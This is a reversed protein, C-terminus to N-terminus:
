LAEELRKTALAIDEDYLQWEPPLLAEYERHYYRDDLLLVMGKDEESRIVRGAAQLVKHMGPFRCAYAYGDGFCRQYCKAVANMRASPTPLGVGIIIAGILREGPLDVGESFLGGLVCLGLRPKGPEMFANLFAAREEEGMERNQVWLPPIDATELQRRVLDLYAYSPFYAIYSGPRTRLMECIARAIHEVSEARQAYRTSVRRRIVALHERPFPSPLSFCADEEGGGLLRKMAPLPTLTASFFIAGHMKKTIAAIEKGPLLCYLTLTRERGHEELLIAYDEDLRQAAYLFPLCIRVAEAAGSAMGGGMALTHFAADRVAEAKELLGEPLAALVADGKESEAELVRLQRILATLARYYANSRGAAKGHEARLKALARSDLTGSLSERVREVTHHAEDVLLTLSGRGQFLRKLQAFPDFAYNLDMLIVDALESLALALEFPCLGHADAVRIIKEDTWTENECLLEEIAKGQRAYHGKARPCFDPHCRTPAPCLTEKATLVMCRAHMGAAYFRELANLPSQRATNRATLYALKGTKGEGLAKFAPYLVAASKGTGTPLSAFLRKKRGIATYVQVALERQGQRYAPFPFPLAKLSEDRKHRHKAERLAFAAYPRLLGDMEAILADRELREEFRQCVEGKENVYAVCIRVACCPKELALMAAYCVAQMRHETLPEAADGAGLKIEEVFPVDGDHFLDMRGHLLIVAEECIFAHKIAREAEAQAAAQRARHAQSGILMSEMDAAPLIDEPFYSFAVLERVSVRFTEEM